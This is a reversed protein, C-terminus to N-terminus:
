QTPSLEIRIDWYGGREFVLASEDEDKDRHFFRRDVEKVFAQVNQGVEKSTYFWAGNALNSWLLCGVLVFGVLPAAVRVTQRWKSTQLALLVALASLLVFAMQSLYFYRQEWAGLHNNGDLSRGVVSGATVGGIILLLGCLFLFGACSVRRWGIWLLVGVVGITASAATTIVWELHQGSLALRLTNGFVSEFVVRHLIYKGTAWAAQPTVNQLADGSQVGLIQYALIIAILGTYAIREGWGRRTILLFSLVPIGLISLPHSWAALALFVFQCIALFPLSPFPALLLMLFLWLLHWQSYTASSHIASNGLPFLAMVLCLIYRDWDNALVFRYRPLAFVTYACASILLSIIGMFYPAFVLPLRTAIYGIGNPLLSIYGGNFRFIGAVAPHNIYYAFMITGDEYHLIPYIYANHSRVFTLIM